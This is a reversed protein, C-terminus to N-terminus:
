RFGSGDLYESRYGITVYLSAAVVILTTLAPLLARRFLAPYRLLLFISRILAIPGALFGLM